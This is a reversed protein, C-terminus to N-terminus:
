GLLGTLTTQLSPFFALASLCAVAACALVLLVACGVGLALGPRRRWGYRAEGTLRNRLRVIFSNVYSRGYQQM